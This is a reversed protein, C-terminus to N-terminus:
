VDGCLYRRIMEEIKDHPTKIGDSRCRDSFAEWEGTLLNQLIVVVADVPAPRTETPTTPKKSPPPTVAPADLFAFRVYIRGGRRVLGSTDEGVASWEDMAELTITGVRKM